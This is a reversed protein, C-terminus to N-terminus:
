INSLEKIKEFWSKIEDFANLEELDKKTINKSVSRNLFEKLKISANRKSLKKDLYDKIKSKENECEKSLVSDLFILTEEEEKKDILNKFKTKNILYNTVDMKDWDKDLIESLDIGPFEKEILRKPIYNELERKNTMFCVSNDNRTNIEECEKRYPFENESGVDSDYIHFEIINTDKLKHEKVYEKLNSGKLDFFDINKCSNIDIIDKLEKINNINRLFNIDNKGEVCILLKNKYYIEKDLFILTDPVFNKLKEKYYEPTIKYIENLKIYNNIQSYGYFLVQLYFLINDNKLFSTIKEEFENLIFTFKEIKYKNKQYAKFYASLMNFFYLANNTNYEFLERLLIYAKKPEKNFFMLAKIFDKYHQCHSKILKERPYNIDFKELSELNRLKEFKKNTSLKNNKFIDQIEKKCNVYKLGSFDKHPNKIKYEEFKSILKNAFDYLELNYALLIAEEIETLWFFDHNQELIPIIGKSIKDIRNDITTHTFIELIQKINSYEFVKKIFKDFLSDEFHNFLKYFNFALDKNYMSDLINNTTKIGFHLAFNIIVKQLSKNKLNNKYIDILIFFYFKILNYKQYRNEQTIISKISNIKLFKYWKQKTNSLNYLIPFNIKHLHKDDIDLSNVLYNSLQKELNSEVSILTKQILIKYDINYIKNRIDLKEIYFSILFYDKANFTDSSAILKIQKDILEKIVKDFYFEKNHGCQIYFKEFENLIYSLSLFYQNGENYKFAYYALHNLVNFISEKEFSSNKYHKFYINVAQKIILEQWEKAYNFEKNDLNNLRENNKLINLLAFHTYRPLALLYINLEINIPFSYLIENMIITNNHCKELIQNIRKSHEKNHLNFSEYHIIIELLNRIFRSGFQHLYNNAENITFWQYMEFLNNFQKPVNDKEFYKIGNFYFSEGIDIDKIENIFNLQTYPNEIIYKTAENLFHNKIDENKFSMSFWNQESISRGIKNILINSFEKFSSEKNLYYLKDFLESTLGIIDQELYILKKNKIILDYHGREEVYKDNFKEIKQEIDDSTLNLLINLLDLNKQEGFLYKKNEKPIKQEYCKLKKELDLALNTIEYENTHM